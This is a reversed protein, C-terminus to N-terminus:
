LSILYMKKIYRLFYLLLPLCQFILTYLIIICFKFTFQMQKQPNQFNFIRQNIKWDQIVTIM